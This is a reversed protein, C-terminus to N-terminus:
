SLLLVHSHRLSTSDQRKGPVSHLSTQQEGRDSPVVQYRSVKTVFSQWNNTQERHHLFLFRCDKWSSKVQFKLTESQTVLRRQVCCQWTGIETKSTLVPKNGTRETVSDRQNIYAKLWRGTKLSSRGPKIIKFSGTGRSNDSNSSPVSIPCTM